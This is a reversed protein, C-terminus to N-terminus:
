VIVGVIKIRLFHRFVPKIHISKQKSFTRLPAEMM